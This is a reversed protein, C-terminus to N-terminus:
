QKRQKREENFQPAKLQYYEILEFKKHEPLLTAFNPNRACYYIFDWIYEEPIALDEIFFTVPMAAVGKDVLQSLDENAAAKRLMDSRGNMENLIGDLSVNVMGPPNEKSDKQIGSATHLKREISTPKPVDSMPFGMDAQTFTYIKDLDTNLNGELTINSINVGDLENLKEKLMVGLFDKKLLDESIVIERTEYQISSFYLTDEVRAAIQFDGAENNTTGMGSSLNLINIAAGNLSDALIKGELRERQQSFCSLSVFIFFLIFLQRNKFTM